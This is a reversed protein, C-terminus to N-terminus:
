FSLEKAPVHQASPGTRMSKVLQGNIIRDSGVETGVRLMILKEDGSSHFWYNTGKPLFVADFRKVDVVNEDSEIRFRAEGQLVYFTHDETPHCHMTNEGGEVYRKIVGSLEPSGPLVLDGTGALIEQNIFEFVRAQTKNSTTM